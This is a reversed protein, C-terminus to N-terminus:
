SVRSYTTCPATPRDITCVVPRLQDGPLHDGLITPQAPVNLPSRFPSMPPRADGITFLRARITAPTQGWLDETDEGLGSLVSFLTQDDRFEQSRDPFAGWVLMIVERM